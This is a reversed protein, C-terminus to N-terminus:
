GCCFGVEAAADNPSEKREYAERIYNEEKAVRASAREFNDHYEPWDMCFMLSLLVNTRYEDLTWLPNFHEFEEWFDERDM